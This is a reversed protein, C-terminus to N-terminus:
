RTPPPMRIQAGARLHAGSAYQPNWAYITSIPVGFWHAISFLNDGARITYIYCNRRDPCPTLVAYRSASGTRQTPRPTPKPTPKPTPAATPTPTPLPTPTPTPLPTPAPTASPPDIPPTSATGPPDTPAPTPAPTSAATPAPTAAIAVADSSAAGGSVVPLDIGGRQIVFGFSVGASLILILIAAVTARPISSLRPEEGATGAVARGRVYRPCDVHEARLCTVEQQRISQSKPRGYAVCTHEDAPSHYPSVLGGDGLDLRLYPCVAPDASRPDDSALLVPLVPRPETSGHDFRGEPASPVSGGSLAAASAPETDPAPETRPEPEDPEPAGM